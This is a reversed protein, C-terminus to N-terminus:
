PDQAVLLREADDVWVPERSPTRIQQDIRLEVRRTRREGYDQVRGLGAPYSRGSMAYPTLHWYTPAADPAAYM